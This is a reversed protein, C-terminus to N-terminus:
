CGTSHAQCCVNWTPQLGVRGSAGPRYGVLPLYHRVPRLSPARSDHCPLESGGFIFIRWRSARCICVSCLNQCRSFRCCIARYNNKEGGRRRPFVDANTQTPKHSIWFTNKRYFPFTNWGSGSGALDKAQLWGFCQTRVVLVPWDLKGLCVCKGCWIGLPDIVQTSLCYRCALWLFIRKLDVLFTM